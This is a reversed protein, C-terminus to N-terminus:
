LYSAIIDNDSLACQEPAACEQVYLIFGILYFEVRLECLFIMGIKVDWGSNYFHCEWFYGGTGGKSM